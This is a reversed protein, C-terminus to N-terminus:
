KLIIFFFGETKAGQTPVMDARMLSFDPVFPCYPNFPAGTPRARRRELGARNHPCTAAIPAM